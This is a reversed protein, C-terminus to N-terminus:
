SLKVKLTIFELIMSYLRSLLLFTSYLPLYKTLTRVQLICSTKLLVFLHLKALIIVSQIPIEIKGNEYGSYTNQAVHLLEALVSQKYDHDERLARIREACEM